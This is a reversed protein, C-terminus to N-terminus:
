SEAWYDQQDGSEENENSYTKLKERLLNLEYEFLSDEEPTTLSVLEDVEVEEPTSFSVLGNVEEEEPTSFSIFAEFDDEKKTTFKFAAKSPFRIVIEGQIVKGEYLKKRCECDIAQGFESFNDSFYHSAPDYHNKNAIRLICTDNYARYTIVTYSRSYITDCPIFLPSIIPSKVKEIEGHYTEGIELAVPSYVLIRDSNVELGEVTLQELEVGVKSVIYDKGIKKIVQFYGVLGTHLMM